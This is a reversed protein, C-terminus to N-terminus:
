HRLKSCLKSLGDLCVKKWRREYEEMNDWLSPSCDLVLQKLLNFEAVPFGHLGPRHGFPTCKKLVEEGFVVESALKRALTTTEYKGEQIATHHLAVFKDMTVLKSKSIESSPLPSKVKSASIPTIAPGVPRSSHPPEMVDSPTETHSVVVDEVSPKSPKQYSPGLRLTSCLREIEKIVRGWVVEFEEPQDWYKPFNNLLVQKITYLSDVPLAPYYSRGRPTCRKLVDEGIVAEVALRRALRLISGKAIFNKYKSLVSDISALASRDIESSSLAKVSPKVPTAIPAMTQESKIVSSSKQHSKMPKALKKTKKKSVDKKSKPCEASLKGSNKHKYVYVTAEKIPRTEGSNVAVEDVENSPVTESIQSHHSIAKSTGGKSKVHVINRRLGNERSKFITSKIHNLFMQQKRTTEELLMVRSLLQDSTTQQLSVQDILLQLVGRVDAIEPYCYM